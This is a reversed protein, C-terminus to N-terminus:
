GFPIGGRPTCFCKVDTRFRASSRNSRSRRPLGNEPLTPNTARVRARMVGRPDVRGTWNNRFRRVRPAAAAMVPCRHRFCPRQRSWGAIAQERIHSRGHRKVRDSTATCAQGGGQAVVRTLGRHRDPNPHGGGEPPSEPASRLPLGAQRHLQPIRAAVGPQGPCEPIRAVLGSAACRGSPKQRARLDTM